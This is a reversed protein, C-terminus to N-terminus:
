QADSEKGKQAAREMFNRQEPPYAGPSNPDHKISLARGTFRGRCRDSLYEGCVPCRPRADIEM